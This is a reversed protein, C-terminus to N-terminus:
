LCHGLCHSRFATLPPSPLPASCVGSRLVASPNTCLSAGCFLGAALPRSSPFFHLCHPSACYIFLLLAINYLPPSPPPRISSYRLPPLLLPPPTCQSPFSPHTPRFTSRRDSPRAPPSRQHRHRTKQQLHRAKRRIPLLLSAGCFSVAASLVYLSREREIYVILQQVYIIVDSVFLCPLRRPACLGARRKGHPPAGM